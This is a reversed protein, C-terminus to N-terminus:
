AREERVAAGWERLCATIFGVLAEHSGHGRADTAVAPGFRVHVPRAPDVPGMDRVWRGPRFFDTRLALPVVPVGARGALKEALTNFGAADFEVMRTAQPFVVVSIGQGLLRAGRELVQKLDERPHARTVPVVPMSRMIPGFLPHTTLSEKIVYAAVKFPALIGPLLLTELTSMHNGAIVAPGPVAELHELGEIRVRAGCQEAYRLSRYSLEAFALRTDPLTRARRWGAVGVGFLVAMNFYFARMPPRGLLWPRQHAATAYRHETRLVTQYQEFSLM